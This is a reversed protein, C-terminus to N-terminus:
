ARRNRLFFLSFRLSIFLHNWLTSPLGYYKVMIRFREKLGKIVNQQSTGGALFKAITDHVNVRISSKKLAKLVWEYDAALSYELNFPESISSRVIVAQHCVLMGKKFHKWNMEEPPKLRRQGISKGQEDILETDGYYIDGDQGHRFIKAVTDKEPILDGANIFWLFKGHAHRMGKNMADYLGKDPESLWFGLQDEYKRIIDITGDNSGGDIIIYELGEFQQNVISKITNELLSKANFVVTIVSILIENNSNGAVM